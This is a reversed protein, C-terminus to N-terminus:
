AAFFEVRIGGPVLCMMHRAHNGGVPQPRFEIEVGARRELRAALAELTEADAVRLALHHLGVNHHRDFPRADHGQRAQWLTITVAGDSVFVAPYDPLEGVQAFGLADLFFDRTPVLSPVTLGVHHVGATVPHRPDNM